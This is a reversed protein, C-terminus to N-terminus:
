VPGSYPYVYGPIRNSSQPPMKTNLRSYKLKIAPIEKM